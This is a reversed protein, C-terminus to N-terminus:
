LAGISIEKMLPWDWLEPFVNSDGSKTHWLKIQYIRPTDFHPSCNSIRLCIQDQKMLKREFALIVQQCRAGTTMHTQWSFLCFFYPMTLTNGFQKCSTVASDWKSYVVVSWYWYGVNTGILCSWLRKHRFWIMVMAASSWIVTMDTLKETNAFINLLLIELIELAELCLKSIHLLYTLSFFFCREKM